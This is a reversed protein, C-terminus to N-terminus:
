FKGEKSGTEEAHADEEAKDLERQALAARQERLGTATANLFEWRDEPVAIPNNMTPLFYKKKPGEDKFEAGLEWSNRWMNIKAGNVRMNAMRNLWAKALKHSSRQFSIVFPREFAGLGPCLVVFNYSETVKLVAKGEPNKVTVYAASERALDSTPDISKNLVKNKKDANMDPNFEVWQFWFMLPIIREVTGREIAVENDDIAYCGQVLKGANVAPSLAQQLRLRSVLTDQPRMQGFDDEPNYIKIENTM